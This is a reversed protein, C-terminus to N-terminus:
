EVESFRRDVSTVSKNPTKQKLSTTSANHSSMAGSKRSQKTTTPAISATHKSYSISNNVNAVEPKTYFM